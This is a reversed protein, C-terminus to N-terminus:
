SLVASHDIMELLFGAVDEPNNVLVQKDDFDPGLHKIHLNHLAPCEFLMDDHEVCILEVEGDVDVDLFNNLSTDIRALQEKGLRRRLRLSTLKLYTSIFNNSSVHM